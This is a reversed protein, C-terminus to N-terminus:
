HLPIPLIQEADVLWFISRIIDEDWEGTIPHILQQVKTYINIGTSTLVKGTLSSPIWQDDWLDIQSGDGV